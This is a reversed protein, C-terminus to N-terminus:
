DIYEMIKDWNDGMVSLMTGLVGLDKEKESVAPVEIREGEAVSVYKSEVRNSKVMGYEETAIKEIVRIDGKLDIELSLEEIEECLLEREGELVSIEKKFESIQAFSFIIMLVVVAFIAIGMILSLSIPAKKVRVEPEDDEFGLLIGKFWSPTFPAPRKVKEVRKAMREASAKAESGDYARARIQAARAYAQTYAGSAFPTTKEYAAIRRKASEEKSDTNVRAFQVTQAKSATKTKVDARVFESTEEFPNAYAKVTEVTKSQPRVRRFTGTKADMAAKSIGRGDFKVKLRECLPNEQATTIRMEASAM